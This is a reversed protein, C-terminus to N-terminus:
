SSYDYVVPLVLRPNASITESEPRWLGVKSLVEFDRIRVQLAAVQRRKGWASASGLRSKLKA